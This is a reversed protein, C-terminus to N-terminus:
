YICINAQLYFGRHPQTNSGPACPDDYPLWSRPSHTLLLSQTLTLSYSHTLLLSYSYTLLLSYSHTLLLSYSHTLTLSYSHTLTLSYSHTLTLLLSYSHTLTLLLSHTLTLSYSHTITLIGQPKTNDFLGLEQLEFEIHKYISVITAQPTAEPDNKVAEIWDCEVYDQLLEDVTKRVRIALPHNYKNLFAQMSVTAGQEEVADVGNSHLQKLVSETPPM